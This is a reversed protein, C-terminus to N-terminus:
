SRWAARLLADHCASSTPYLICLSTSSLCGPLLCVCLVSACVPKAHPSASEFTDERPLSKGTEERVPAEERFAGPAQRPRRHGCLAIQMISASSSAPQAQPCDKHISGM